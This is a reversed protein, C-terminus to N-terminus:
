DLGQVQAQRRRAPNGRAPAKGEKSSPSSALFMLDASKIPLYVWSARLTPHAQWAPLHAMTGGDIVDGDCLLCETLPGETLLSPHTSFPNQFRPTCM